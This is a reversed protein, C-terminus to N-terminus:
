RDDSVEDIQAGLEYRMTVRAELRWGNRREQENIQRLAPTWESEDLIRFGFREYFPANWPVVRYTNLTIAEYREARAWECVFSLLARGVGRRQHDPHVDFEILHLGDDLRGLLAFGLPADAEDTAVWLLGERQADAFSEISNTRALLADTLGTESRYERFRAAAALEIM